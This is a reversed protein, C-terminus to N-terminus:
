GIVVAQYQGPLPPADFMVGITNGDANPKWVVPVVSDRTYTRRFQAIVETTGLDHQVVGFNGSAPVVPGSWSRSGVVAATDVAVEYTIAGDENADETILIGEGGTLSSLLANDGVPIGDADIVQGLSNVAAVGGPRGRDSWQVYTEGGIIASLDDLDAFSVDSDPMVFDKVFQRGLYRERWAIRYLLRGSLGPADSPVLDFTVPTVQNELLVVRNQTGGVLTVDDGPSSPEALPSVSVEMTTPTGTSISRQFNVTLTRRPLTM